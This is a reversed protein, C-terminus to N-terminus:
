LNLLNFFNESVISNGYENVHISDFYIESDDVEKFINTFDYLWDNAKIDSVIRKKFEKANDIYDDFQPFVIQWYQDSWFQLKEVANICESGIWPQLVGYFTIGHMQCIQHMIKENNIWRQYATRRDKIGYIVEKNNDEEWKKSTRMLNLNIYPYDPIYQRFDIIGSYSIVIDPELLLVDRYLKIAENTSNYDTIAGNYIVVDIQQKSCIEWLMEPWSKQPYFLPDTVSNGLLVIKKQANKFDGNIYFGPYEKNQKFANGLFWDFGCYKDTCNGSFSNYIYVFHQTQKLGIECLIDTIEKQEFVSVFVIVKELNYYALDYIKEMEADVSIILADGIENKLVTILNFWFAYEASSILFVAKRKQIRSLIMTVMLAANCKRNQGNEEFVFENNFYDLDALYVKTCVIFSSFGGRWNEKDVIYISDVDDIDALSYIPLGYIKDRNQGNKEVFGLVRVKHQLLFLFIKKANVDSSLIYVKNKEDLLDSNLINDIDFVNKMIMTFM